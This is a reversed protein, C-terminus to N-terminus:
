DNGLRDGEAALFESNIQSLERQIQPDAAMQSLSADWDDQDHKMSIRARHVLRELLSLQADPTLQAFESEIKDFAPTAM